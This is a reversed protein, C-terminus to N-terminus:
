SSIEHITLNLSFPSFIVELVTLYNVWFISLSNLRDATVILSLIWFNKLLNGTSSIRLCMFAFASKLKLLLRISISSFSSYYFSYKKQFIPDIVLFPLPSINKRISRSVFLKPLNLRRLLNLRSVKTQGLFFLIRDFDTCIEQILWPLWFLLFPRHTRHDFLFLSQVKQM